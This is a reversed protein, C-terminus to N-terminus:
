DVKILSLTKKVTGYVRAAESRISDSFPVDDEGFEKAVYRAVRERINKLRTRDLLIQGTASVRTALEELTKVKSDKAMVSAQRFLEILTLLDEYKTASSEMDYLNQIDSMLMADPVPGPDPNPGPNPDPKSGVVKIKCTGEDLIIAGDKIYYISVDVIYEGPPAVFELTGKPSSARDVSERPFVRWSVAAGEPVGAVEVRALKYPQVEDPATISAGVRTKNEASAPMALLVCFVLPGTLRFLMQM